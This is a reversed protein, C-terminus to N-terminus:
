GGSRLAAGVRAAVPATVPRRRRRRAVGVAALYATFALSTLFFGIPYPRYYALFLAVWTVLVGVVIAVALGVAPRATLAQACAAPGVLLAFVLLTGTIQAVEAAAAALLLLFVLSLGRVPVGRVRAVQPDLSAFLLQRGIVALVAVVGVAVALLARVQGATIGLFNGFLLASAGGAFGSYLSSFWFGLGLATAQVTGTVASETGLGRATAPVLGIVVAAALSFAFFGATASAGVLVAGAAGPFGVVALTHGTFSQRRLVMFWGILAALVAVITGAQVAHVMFPYSLVEQVDAVVNWTLVPEFEGSGATM